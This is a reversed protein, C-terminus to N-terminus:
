LILRKYNDSLGLKTNETRCIREDSLKTELGIRFVLLWRAFFM